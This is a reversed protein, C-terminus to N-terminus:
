SWMVDRYAKWKDILPQWLDRQDPWAGRPSTGYDTLGHGSLVYLMFEVVFGKEKILDFTKGDRVAELTAIMLDDSESSYDGHIGRIVNEWPAFFGECGVDEATAPLPLALAAQLDERRLRAFKQHPQEM